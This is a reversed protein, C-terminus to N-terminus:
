YIMEGEFALLGTCSLFSGLSVLSCRAHVNIVTPYRILLICFLFGNIAAGEDGEEVSIVLLLQLLQIM